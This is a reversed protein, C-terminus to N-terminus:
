GGGIKINTGSQLIINGGSPIIEFYTNWYEMAVRRPITLAYSDGTENGITTKRIKHFKRARYKLNLINLM